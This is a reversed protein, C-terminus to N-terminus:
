PQLRFWRHTSPHRRCNGSGCPSVLCHSCESFFLASRSFDPDITPLRSPSGISLPHFAGLDHALHLVDTRGFPCRPPFYCSKTKIKKGGLGRSSTLQRESVKCCVVLFM